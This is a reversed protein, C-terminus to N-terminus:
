MPTLEYYYKLDIPMCTYIRKVMTEPTQTMGTKLWQIMAQIAGAWFFHISFVLEETLRKEGIHHRSYNVLGNYYSTYFSNPGKMEFAYKYFERHEQMLQLQMLVSEQFDKHDWFLNVAETVKDDHVWYILDYIDVFHRYFTQRSLGSREVINRITINSIPKTELCRELAGAFKRKSSIKSQQSM